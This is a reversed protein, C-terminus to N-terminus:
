LRRRRAPAGVSKSDPRAVSSAIDWVHAAAAQWSMEAARRYGRERLAAAFDADTLLRWIATAVGSHDAPDVLLAAEGVVEPLSARSSAVVPAGCSMAELPPLGFSELHSPYVFCDTEQLQEIVAEHSMQGLLLTRDAIGLRAAAEKLKRYGEGTPDRGIIRAQWRPGESPLRALSDILDLSGKYDYLDSVFTIVRLDQDARGKQRATATRPTVGEPVVVYKSSFEPFDQVLARELFASVCLIRDAGRVTRRLLRDGIMHRVPARPAHVPFQRRIAPVLLAAQITVLTPVALPGPGINSPVILVDGHNWDRRTFHWREYLLRGAARSPIARHEEYPFVDANRLHSASVSSHLLLVGSLSAIDALGELLGDLFTRTGGGAASLSWTPIVLRM